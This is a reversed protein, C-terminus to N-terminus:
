FSMRNTRGIDLNVYDQYRATKYVGKKKLIYLLERSKHCTEQSKAFQLELRHQFTKLQAVDFCHSTRVSGLQLDM